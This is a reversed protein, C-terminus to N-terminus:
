DFLRRVNFGLGALVSSNVEDDNSLLEGRQYSNNEVVRLEVTQASEDILWLEKQGFQQGPFTFLEGIEELTYTKVFPSTNVWTM